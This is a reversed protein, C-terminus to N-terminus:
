KCGLTRREQEAKNKISVPADPLATRLEQYTACAEPVKNLSGLSMGLKLLADPAKPGAKNKQYADLFAEAAPAYQGRAYYAEGLWYRANDALPDDPNNKLFESFAIEAEDYNAKRLLGFGHAYQERPTGTSVAAATQASSEAPAAPEPAAPPATAIRAESEPLRGLVTPGDESGARYGPSAPEQSSPPAPQNAAAAVTSGTAGAGQQGLRYDVDSSLKELRDSLQRVQYSLEEVRGTSARLDRELESLRVELRAVAPDSAAGQADVIGHQEARPPHARELEKASAGQSYAGLVGGLILTVGVILCRTKQRLVICDNM